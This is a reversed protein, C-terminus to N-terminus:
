DDGGPIIPAIAHRVEVSDSVSSEIIVPYEHGVFMTAHNGLPLSRLCRLLYDRNFESEVDIPVTTYESPVRVSGRCLSPPAPTSRPNLRLVGDSSTVGVRPAAVQEFLQVLNGATQSMEVTHEPLPVDGVDMGEDSPQYSHNGAWFELGRAVTVSPSHEALAGLIPLEVVGEPSDTADIDLVESLSIRATSQVANGTGITFIDLRKEDERLQALALSTDSQKVSRIATQLDSSDIRM